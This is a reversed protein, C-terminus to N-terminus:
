TTVKVDKQNLSAYSLISEETADGAELEKVMEGDRMILIRDCMGLVEPLESSVMLVSVGQSALENLITYIESKASIDIGRTPEDVILVKPATLLWKALLVKQQNGGSLSNVQDTYHGIKINLKHTMQEADKIEGAKNLTMSSSAALKALSTNKLISMELLLGDNKRDEPVLALGKKIADRPDHPRLKKGDVIVEGSAIRDAGFICRVLETRGAGVLGAIGVIEGKKVSFSVNKVFNVKDTLNNVELVVESDNAQKRLRKGYLDNIERGVMSKVLEQQTIAHTDQNPLVLTGDRFVTIRDSIEYIENFRHSVIILGVGGARLKRIVKFLQNVENHSLAATPEDLIVVEANTSVAKLIEIIQMDAISLSSVKELPNIHGEMAFLTLLKKTEKVMEKKQISFNWKYFSPRNLFINEAVSLDPILNFEQLVIAVGSDIADSPSTFSVPKGKLYLTGSDPQEIGSIIKALTSKGAGNEGMLAHVEGQRLEFSVNNLAQIGGYRKSISQARMLLSEKSM